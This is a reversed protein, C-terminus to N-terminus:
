TKERSRYDLYGQLVYAAAVKDIVQKRKSRRVDAEILAREAAASSLREDWLTVPLGCRAKLAEAYQEALAAMPGVSGDMNRPHGVVIEDAERESAIAAISEVDAQLSKHRLVDLPQATWGMEDSLAVGIRVTGIDLGLIRM